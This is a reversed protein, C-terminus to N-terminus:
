KDICCNKYKKGSGCPCPENRGIKIVRRPKEVSDEEDEDYYDGDDKKSYYDSLDEDETNDQFLGWRDMVAVPDDIHIDFVRHKPHNYEEIFENYDEYFVEDIGNRDFISKVDALLESLQHNRICDAIITLVTIDDKDPQGTYVEHILRHFISIVEDRSLHGDFYHIGWTEIAVMRSWPSILRNEMLPPLLSKDGNFTDRLLWVCYETLLDDWLYRVEDEDYNILDLLRPYAKPERMQALLFAAPIYSDHVDYECSSPDKIAQDLIDLLMPIFDDKRRLIERCAKKRWLSHEELLLIIKKDSLGTLM